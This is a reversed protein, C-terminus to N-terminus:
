SFSMEDTQSGDVLHRRALFTNHRQRDSRPSSM